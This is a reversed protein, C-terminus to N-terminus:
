LHLCLNQMTSTTCSCCYIPSVEKYALRSLLLGAAAAAIYLMLFVNDFWRQPHSLTWDACPWPSSRLQGHRRHHSDSNSVSQRWRDSVFPLTRDGVTMDVLPVTITHTDHFLNTCDNGAIHMCCHSCHLCEVHMKSALHFVVAAM